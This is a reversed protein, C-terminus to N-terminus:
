FGLSVCIQACFEFPHRSSVRTFEYDAALEDVKGLAPLSVAAFELGPLTPQLKSQALVAGAM